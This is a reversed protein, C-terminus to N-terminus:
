PSSCVGSLRFIAVMKRTMIAVRQGSPDIDAHDDFPFLLDDSGDRGEWEFCKGGSKADVVRVVESNPSYGDSSMGMSAIEEFKDAIKQAAGVERVFNDSLLRSGDESIKLNWGLTGHPRKFKRLAPLKPKRRSIAQGSEKPVFQSEQLFPDLVVKGGRVGGLILRGDEAPLLGWFHHISLVEGIQHAQDQGLEFTRLNCRGLYCFAVALRHDSLFTLKGGIATMGAPALSSIDISYAPQPATQAASM